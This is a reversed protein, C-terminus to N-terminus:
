KESPLQFIQSLREWDQPCLPERLLFIGNEEVSVWASRQLLYKNNAIEWTALTSFTRRKNQFCKNGNRGNWHMKAKGSLYTYSFTFANPWRSPSIRNNQFWVPSLEHWSQTPQSSHSGLCTAWNRQTENGQKYFPCLMVQKMINISLIVHPIYFSCITSQINWTNISFM